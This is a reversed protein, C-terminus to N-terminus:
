ILWSEIRGALDDDLAKRWDDVSSLLVDQTTHQPRFTTAYNAIYQRRWCRRWWPYFRYRSTRWMSAIGEKPVPNVSASKWERPIRGTQLINIFLSTLSRSIGNAAMNLIKPSIEDVGTVKNTDLGYLLTQVEEEDIMQCTFECNLRPLDCRANTVIM